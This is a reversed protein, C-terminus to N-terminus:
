FRNFKRGESKGHKYITELIFGNLCTLGCGIIFVVFDLGMELSWYIWGCVIVNIITFVAYGILNIMKNEKFELKALLSM